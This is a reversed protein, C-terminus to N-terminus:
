ANENKNGGKDELSDYDLEKKKGRILYIGFVIIAFGIVLQPFYRGINYIYNRTQYSITFPIMRYLNNWLITFGIVILILALVLNYKRTLVSIRDKDIDVNFLFEDELAYFEDDPMSRLNHVSFFSYFWIVPMIFLLPGLELWAAFFILFLFITMISAGRKMFGMYMEGAGPILSFIFTFFSNKKKIM